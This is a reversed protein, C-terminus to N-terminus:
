SKIAVIYGGGGHPFLEIIQSYSTAIVFITIVTGIAVFISLYTHHQLALFAEQPGYCSSSLGDAGLGIWAFFAILSIKHFITTDQPNRSRGIFITKIRKFFPTKEEQEM